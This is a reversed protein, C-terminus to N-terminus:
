NWSTSLETRSRSGMQTRNCRVRDNCMSWYYWIARRHQKVRLGRCVTEAINNYIDFFFQACKRFSVETWIERLQMTVKLLQIKIINYHNKQNQCQFLWHWSCQLWKFILFYINYLDIGLLIIRMNVKVKLNSIVFYSYAGKREMLESKRVNRDCRGLVEKRFVCM